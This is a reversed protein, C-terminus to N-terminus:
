AALLRDFFARYQRLAQRLDETSVNDGRGWQEELRSRERAFRDALQQIASAVLNDAQEVTQRPEDVFGTQIASWRSRMEQLEGQPFLPESKEASERPKAGTERSILQPRGALTNRLDQVRQDDSLIPEDREEAPTRGALDSTRLKENRIPEM